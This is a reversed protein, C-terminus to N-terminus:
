KRAKIFCIEPPSCFRFPKHGGLGRNVYLKKGGLDFLGRTYERNQLLTLKQSLKRGWKPWPLHIQEGHTHGALIWDGPYNLLSPTSDPNHSLVLGPHNPDYNAFAIEPSCRGLALDGLGTINLGKPLTTTTNELLTFPTKDLLSCLPENLGVAKARDSVSYSISPTSFLIKVGRLVGKLPNPPPLLDYVGEKNRSIYSAYDHNGLSCFSGLPAELQQLFKKLREGEDLQAYCLFDGTFLILDPSARHIKRLIKDLFKQSVGKHFHLDTLHAITLGDLHAHREELPWDLTTEKLLRPEIFRPWIGVISAVSLFDIVYSVGRPYM